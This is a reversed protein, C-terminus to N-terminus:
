AVHTREEFNLTLFHTACSICPDYNRLTREALDAAQDNSLSVLEPGLHILDAEMSRQNQSTPPVIRVDRLLGADDIAYRHLLTGRPAETIGYGTGPIIRYRVASARPPKYHELIRAAELFAYLVEVGRALFARSLNRCEPRLGARTAAERARPCLCDSNLAFRASAGMTYDAHGDLRSQLANSYPVQEEVLASDFEHVDLSLGWTSVLRGETMPYESGHRLSVFERDRGHEPFPFTSAWELTEETAGIAADIPALLAHLDEESPVAFFGGVKANIPHISRGGLAAILDRGVTRISLARKVPEPHLRALEVVDNVGFFDPAHMLIMHALHSEIWEGCLFLRRLDKLPEPIEMSFASEVAQCAALQYAVPCIGCIRSTIDPAETCARGRLLSEFLRPPEFIRLKADVVRQDDLVLTVAGQGEVRAIDEITITRTVM